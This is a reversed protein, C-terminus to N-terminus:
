VSVPVSSTPLAEAIEVTTMTAVAAGAAGGAEGAGVVPLVHMEAFVTRASACAAAGPEGDAVVELQGPAAPARAEVVTVAGSLTASMAVPASATAASAIVGQVPASTTLPEAVDLVLV